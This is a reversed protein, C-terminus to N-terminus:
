TENLCKGEQTRKTQSPTKRLIESSLKELYDESLLNVEKNKSRHLNRFSGGNRKVSRQKHM